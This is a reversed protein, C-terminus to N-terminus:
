EDTSHVRAEEIHSMNGGLIVDVAAKMIHDTSM